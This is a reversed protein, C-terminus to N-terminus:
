KFLKLQLNQPNNFNKSSVQLNNELLGSKKCAMSFIAKLQEAFIGQGKMRSNFSSDYLKGGRIQTIRNIVKNKKDPIFHDLWNEFLQKNQHPLRLLIYKASRAGAQASKSVIDPIETETLGPIIPAVLVGTPINNKSLKEISKLRLTPNSARPELQRSLNPNLTTISIFVAASEYQALEKLLDLDRTILESKTILIVPNRYKLFVKLCQRTIGLKREIPQYPDTVGSMAVSQPKWNKSTLEKELLKAANYKIFIKTEFDLGSSLELYEHTPRAYCYICGQECGRYPNISIDFGVDPSDNRSLISKSQDSFYETKPNPSLESFSEDDLNISIPKFRNFPNLFAGRGSM